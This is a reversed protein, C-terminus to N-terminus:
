CTYPLLLTSTAVYEYVIGGCLCVGVVVCLVCICFLFCEILDSPLLLIYIEIPNLPVKKRCCVVDGEPEMGGRVETACLVTCSLSALCWEFTTKFVFFVLVCVRLWAFYSGVRAVATSIYKGTAIVVECLILPDPM